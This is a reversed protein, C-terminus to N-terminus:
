ENKSIWVQAPKYGLHASKQIYPKAKEKKGMELYAIGLNYYFGGNQADYKIANLFHKIALEYSRSKSYITM